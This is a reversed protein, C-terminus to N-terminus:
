YNEEFYWGHQQCYDAVPVGGITLDAPAVITVNSQGAFALPSLEVDAFDITVQLVDTDMGAFCYEELSTALGTVEVEQFAAGRFAEEDVREIDEPLTCVATGAPLITFHASLSGTTGSGLPLVTVTATGPEVNGSWVVEYDTGAALDEGGELVPMPCKERGSCIFTDVPLTLTLSGLDVPAASVEVHFVRDDENLVVSLQVPNGAADQWPKASQVMALLHFRPMFYALNGADTLDYWGGNDAELYNFLPVEFVTSGLNIQEQMLDTYTGTNGDDDMWGNAEPWEEDLRVIASNAMSLCDHVSYYGYHRNHYRSDQIFEDSLCFFHHREHGSIPGESENPDDWTVDVHAWIGDLCIQNWAHNMSNSSIRTVDIGAVGMLLSYAKSYSDCVGTGKYLVGDPGYNTYTYDYRAHHTLWDHVNLATQWDDGPVRCENVVQTVLTDLTPHDADPELTFEVTAFRSEDENTTNLAFLTVRYTAPMALAPLTVTPGEINRLSYLLSDAGLDDDNIQVTYAYEGDPATDEKVIRYVGQTGYSPATVVELHFDGGQYATRSHAMGWIRRALALDEERYPNVPFQDAQAATVAGLILVLLVALVVTLKKM